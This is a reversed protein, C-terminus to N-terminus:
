RCVVRVYMTKGDPSPAKVEDCGRPVSQHGRRQGLYGRSNEPRAGLVEESEIARLENLQERQEPSLRRRDDGDSQGNRRMAARAAVAGVVVGAGVYAAPPISTAVRQPAPQAKAALAKENMQCAQVQQAFDPSSMKDVKKAAEDELKPSTTSARKCSAVYEIYRASHKAYEGAKPYSQASADAASLAMVVIAAAFAFRKM